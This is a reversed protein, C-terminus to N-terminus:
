SHLLHKDVMSFGQFRVETYLTIGPSLFSPSVVGSSFSWQNRGKTYLFSVLKELEASWAGLGANRNPCVTIRHTVARSSRLM